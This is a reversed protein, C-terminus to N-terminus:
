RKPVPKGYRQRAAEGSTGVMAGITFWSFGDARAREVAEAIRREADVRDLFAQRAARLNTADKWKSYDVDLNEFYDALEDAHDLFEQLSRPM